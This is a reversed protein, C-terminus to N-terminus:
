PKIADRHAASCYWYRQHHLADSEPLHTGCYNCTVMIQPHSQPNPPPAVKTQDLGQKRKARLWWFFAVAVLALILIRSM